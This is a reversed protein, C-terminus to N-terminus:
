TLRDRAEAARYGERSAAALISSSLALAQWIQSSRTAGPVERVAARAALRVSNAVEVRSSARATAMVELLASGIKDATM